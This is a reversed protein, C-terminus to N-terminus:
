RATSVVRYCMGVADPATEKFGYRAYLRDAPVHASLTVFAGEALQTTAYSMLADMIVKGLGMGQHTPEVVVDVIEVFCVGDGVIRGMGVLTGGKRLTVVHCSQKLSEAAVVAPFVTFDVSRMLARYEEPSPPSRSIEIEDKATPVSETRKWRPM